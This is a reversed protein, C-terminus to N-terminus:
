TTSTAPDALHALFRRVDASTAAIFASAASRDGAKAALALRTPEDDRRESM